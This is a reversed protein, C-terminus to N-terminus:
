PQFIDKALALKSVLETITGNQQLEGPDKGTHYSLMRVQYGEPVIPRGPKFGEPWHEEPPVLGALRYCGMRGPSDMDLAAWVRSVYRKFFRRATNPVGATLVAVTNPVHPALAFYDFVGEVIVIQKTRWVTEIAQDIGFLYPYVDQSYAYFQQYSRKEGESPLPRTVLGISKGLLSRLPFVLRSFWYKPFWEAFEKTCAGIVISSSSFGIQHARWVAEEVGRARLYARAPEADPHTLLYEHARALLDDLWPNV